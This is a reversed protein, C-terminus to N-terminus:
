CNDGGLREGGGIGVGIILAPKQYLGVIFTLILDVELLYSMIRHGRSYTSLLKMEIKRGLVGMEMVIMKEILVRPHLRFDKCTFCLFTFLM